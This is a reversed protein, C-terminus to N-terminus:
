YVAGDGTGGGGQSCSAFSADIGGSPTPPRLSRLLSWQLRYCANKRRRNSYKRENLHESFVRYSTLM